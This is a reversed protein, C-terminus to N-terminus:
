SGIVHIHEGPPANSHIHHLRFYTRHAPVQCDLGLGTTTQAEAHNKGDGCPERLDNQEAHAVEDKACWAGHQKLDQLLGCQRGRRRGFRQLEGLMAFHVQKPGTIQEFAGVRGRQFDPVQFRDRDKASWPRHHRQLDCFDKTVPLHRHFIEAGL